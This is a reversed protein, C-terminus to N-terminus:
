YHNARAPARTSTKDGNIRGGYFRGHLDSIQGLADYWVWPMMDYETCWWHMMLADDIRWWHMMLADDPCWWPRILVDDACWWHMMVADDSCWLHMMLTEDPCWWCMMLADDTCWWHMMLADNSCWWQMMLADDPSWPVVDIGLTKCQKNHRTEKEESLISPIYMAADSIPQDWYM